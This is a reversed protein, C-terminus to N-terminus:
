RRMSSSSHNTRPRSSWSSRPWCCGPPVSWGAAPNWPLASTVTSIRLGNQRLALVLDAIRSFADRYPALGLIQSGIHTALGVPTIGPMSAAKTYLAIADDYPIGFKDTARGTAIKDNTGADIDPNV